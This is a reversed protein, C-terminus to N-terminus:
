SMFRSDLHFERKKKKENEIERLEKRDYKVYM